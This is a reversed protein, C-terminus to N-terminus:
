FGFGEKFWGVNRGRMVWDGVYRRLDTGMEEPGCVVVAVREESGANNFIDDVIKRLDPRKRNHQSTYKNKRRDRYMASMEVEGNGEDVGSGEGVSDSRRSRSNTATATRQRSFAGGSSPSDAIQGTLFIHVNEDNMIDHSSNTGMVAWTADGATQIAWILEVKASPSDNVIARYLPLTFTAGIGGSVLLIRDFEGSTLAAAHSLAGYPGEIALPFKSADPGSSTGTARALRGLAATM